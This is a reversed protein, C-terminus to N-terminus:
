REGHLALQSEVPDIRKEELWAQIWSRMRDREKELDASEQVMALYAQALRQQRQTGTLSLERHGLQEHAVEIAEIVKHHDIM